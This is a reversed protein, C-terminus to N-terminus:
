APNRPPADGHTAGLLYARQEATLAAVRRRARHAAQRCRPGCFRQDCRKAAMWRGCWQCRALLAALARAARIAARVDRAIGAGRRYRLARM